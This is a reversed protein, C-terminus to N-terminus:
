AEGLMVLCHQLHNGTLTKKMEGHNKLKVVGLM